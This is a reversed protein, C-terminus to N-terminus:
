KQRKTQRSISVSILIKCPSSLGSIFQQTSVTWYNKTFDIVFEGYLSRYGSVDVLQKNVSTTRIILSTLVSFYYASPAETTNKPHKSSAHTWHSKNVPVHTVFYEYNNGSLPGSILFWKTSTSTSPHIHNFHANLLLCHLPDSSFERPKTYIVNPPSKNVDCQVHMIVVAVPRCGM